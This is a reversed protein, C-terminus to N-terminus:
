KINSMLRRRSEIYYKRNGRVIEAVSRGWGEVVGCKTIKSVNIIYNRFIRLVVCCHELHLM